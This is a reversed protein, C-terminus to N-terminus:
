CRQTTPNPSRTGLGKAKGGKHKQRSCMSAIATVAEWIDYWSTVTAPGEIDILVQCDGDAILSIPSCILRAIEVDPTCCQAKKREGLILPLEEEVIPNGPRGFILPKKTARMNAFIIVCSGWSPGPTSTTDCKINPKYDAIAVGIKNDGGLTPVKSPYVWLGCM